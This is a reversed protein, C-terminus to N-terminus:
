STTSSSSYLKLRRRSLVMVEEEEEKLSLSLSRTRQGLKIPRLWVPDRRPHLQNRWHHEPENRWRWLLQPQQHRHHSNPDSHSCPAFPHGFNSLGPLFGVVLRIEVARGSEVNIWVVSCCFFNIVVFFFRQLLMSTM